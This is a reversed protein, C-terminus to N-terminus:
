GDGAQERSAYMCRLAAHRPSGWSEAWRQGDATQARGRGHRAGRRCLRPLREVLHLVLPLHLLLLQDGRDGRDLVVLELGLLLYGVVRRRRQRRRRWRRRGGGGSM